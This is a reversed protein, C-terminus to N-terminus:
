AIAARDGEKYSRSALKKRSVDKEIVQCMLGEPGSPDHVDSTAENTSWGVIQPETNCRHLPPEPTRHPQHREPDKARRPRRFGLVNGLCLDDEILAARGAVREASPDFH